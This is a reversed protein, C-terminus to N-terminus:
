AVAGARMTESLETPLLEHWRILQVPGGADLAIPGLWPAATCELGASRWRSEDIRATETVGEARLGVKGGGDDLARRLVIIRTSLLAAAPVGRVLQNLDVVPVLADRHHLLGGIWGPARPVPLLPVSPVVELVDGVDLGFRRGDCHLLLVLM